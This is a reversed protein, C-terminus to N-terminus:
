PNPDQFTQSAFGSTTPPVTMEWVRGLTDTLRMTLVHGTGALAASPIDFVRQAYWGAGSGGHGGVSYRLIDTPALLAGDLLAQVAAVGRTSTAQLLYVRTVDPAARPNDDSTLYSPSAEVDVNITAVHPSVRTTAYAPSGRRGDALVPTYEVTYTGIRDAVFTATASAPNVSLSAASDAPKELFRMSPQLAGAVATTTTALSVSDGVHHGDAVAIQAVADAAPVGVVDVSASPPGGYPDTQTASSVNFSVIAERRNGAGGLDGPATVVAQVTHPVGVLSATDLPHWWMFQGPQTTIGIYATMPTGDLSFEVSTPAVCGAAAYVVCDSLPANAHVPRLWLATQGNSNVVSLDFEIQNPIARVATTTVPSTSAADDIRAEILYDGPVDPTFTATAADGSIGAASVAPRQALRWHMAGPAASASLAVPTGVIVQAPDRFFNTGALSVVPAPVTAAPAGAGGGGCATVALATCAVCSRTLSLLRNTITM